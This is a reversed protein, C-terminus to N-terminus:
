TIVEYEYLIGQNSTGIPYANKDTLMSVFKSNNTHAHVALFDYHEKMRKAVKNFTNKILLFNNKSPKYMTPHILVIDETIEAKVHGVIEVTNDVIHLEVVGEKYVYEILNEM